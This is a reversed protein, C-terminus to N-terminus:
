GAATASNGRGGASVSLPRVLLTLLASLLVLAALLGALAEVSIGRDLLVGAVLPSVATALVMAAQSVSRIAGLHRSGYREPWLAGGATGTGAQTIGLLTLYAYPVWGDGRLSLLLLGAIMPMLALASALTAGSYIM